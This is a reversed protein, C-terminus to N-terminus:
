ESNAISPRLNNIYTYLKCIPNNQDYLQLVCLNALTQCSKPTSNKLCDFGSKLYLFDITDSSAITITGDKDKDVGEENSFTMSKAINVPFNTTIYQSDTISVCTDGAAVYGTLDCQCRWPKQNTDYIQGPPCAQCYYVPASPGPYAGTPCSLCQKTTLYQGAVDKEIVASNSPCLCEGTQKDVGQPCSICRSRDISSASGAACEVCKAATVSNTIITNTSNQLVYATV